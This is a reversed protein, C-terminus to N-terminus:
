RRITRIQGTFLDIETFEVPENYTRKVPKQIAMKQKSTKLTDRMAASSLLAGENLSPKYTLTDM